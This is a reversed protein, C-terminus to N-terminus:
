KKELINMDNALGLQFVRSSLLTKNDWTYPSRIFVMRAPLNVGASLTSTCCLVKVSGSRFGNEIVNREETTLGGHHYSVGCDM